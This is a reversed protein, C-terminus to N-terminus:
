LFDQIWLSASSLEKYMIRYRLFYRSDLPRFIFDKCRFRLTSEAVPRSPTHPACVSSRAAASHPINPLSHACDSFPPPKLTPRGVPRTCVPIPACLALYVSLFGKLIHRARTTITSSPKNSTSFLLLFILPMSPVWAFFSFGFSKHFM